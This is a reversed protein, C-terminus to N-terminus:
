VSAPFATYHSILVAGATTFEFVETVPRDGAYREVITAVNGNFVIPALLELTIGAKPVGA